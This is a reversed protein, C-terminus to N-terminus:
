FKKFKELSIYLAYQLNFQEERRFHCQLSFQSNYSIMPHFNYKITYNAALSCRGSGAM